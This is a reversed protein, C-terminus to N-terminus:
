SRHPVEARARDDTLEWGLLRYALGRHGRTTLVAVVSVLALLGGLAGHDDTHGTLLLYGGIGLLWRLLLGAPRVPGTPRLRVVAEGPTRHTALLWGLVALAPVTGTLWGPTTRDDTLALHGVALVAGLGFGVSWDCVMGLLRRGATVPRPQDPESVRQGPVLWLAPAALAGLLAGTTNLLLDDVDFLRYACPYLFWDGTLQTLEILLSVALGIAVTTHVSRRALHRVLMGLPVFLLVNAVAQQFAPDHLFGRADDDAIDRLFQTLHLQTGVCASAPLSTPLPLLTYTVLAFGYVLSGVALVAPGLGVTGRRRFQVAVYPVLLVSALLVGGVVAVLASFVPESM